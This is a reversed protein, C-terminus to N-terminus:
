LSRTARAARSLPVTGAKVSEKDVYTKVLQGAKGKDLVPFNGVVAATFDALMLSIEYKSSLDYRKVKPGLNSHIWSIIVSDVSNEAGVSGSPLKLKKEVRDALFGNARLRLGKTDFCQGSQLIKWAKPNVRWRWYVTNGARRLDLFGQYANLAIILRDTVPMTPYIELLGLREHMIMVDSNLFRVVKVATVIGKLSYEVVWNDLKKVNVAHKRWEKKNFIATRTKASCVQKITVKALRVKELAKKATSTRNM